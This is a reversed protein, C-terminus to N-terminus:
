NASAEKSANHAWKKERPALPRAGVALANLKCREYECLRALSKAIDKLLPVVLALQDQAADGTQASKARSLTLGKSDRTSM